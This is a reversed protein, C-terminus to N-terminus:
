SSAGPRPSRRYFFSAYDIRYENPDLTKNITRLYRGNEDRKSLAAIFPRIPAGKKDSLVLVRPRKLFVAHPEVVIGLENTDLMVFSGVPYAGMMSVFQRVLVPDLKKGANELLTRVAHDPSRYGETYSLSATLADYMEAIAVIRTYFDQKPIHSV